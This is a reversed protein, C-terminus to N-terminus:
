PGQPTARYVDFVGEVAKTADNRSLGSSDAVNAILENKNM